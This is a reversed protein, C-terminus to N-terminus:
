VPAANLVAASLAGLRIRSRAHDMVWQNAGNRTLWVISHWFTFPGPSIRTWPIGEARNRTIVWEAFSKRDVLDRADAQTIAGNLLRLRLGNAAPLVVDPFGPADIAFIRNHRPTLCEDDDRHDDHTGMPQFQLRTWVGARRQWFSNRRTRVIDYEMGPRHGAITFQLEM